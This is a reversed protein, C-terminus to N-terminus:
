AYLWADAGYDEVLQDWRDIGRDANKNQHTYSPIDPIDVKKLAIALSDPYDDHDAVGVTLLQSYLKDIKADVPCIIVNYRQIIPLIISLIRDEKKQLSYDDWVTVRINNKQFDIRVERAIQLQAQNTEINCYELKYIRSLRMLSEVMGPMNEYKHIAYKGGEIHVIIPFIKGEPLQRYVTENDVGAFVPYCRAFGAVTIVTDDSTTAISSAPDLGAFLTAVGKWHKKDYDFEVMNRGDTVYHNIRTQHFAEPKVMMMEPALAENMYEQYFYNIKGEILNSYYKGLISYLDHKEPWSMTSLKRQRILCEARSPRVFDEGHWCEKIVNQLEDMGIVPKELGKWLKSKRFTKVVTDPHVMTGLWICKGRDVSLSNIAEATFWYNMKDRMQETQVNQQSYMDDVILLSPRKGQINRGRIRQGAGKAQVITGDKTIFSNMRFMTSSKRGRGRVKMEELELVRPDKEGFATALDTRDSVTDKLASVFMQAQDGTESAIMIFDEKLPIEVIPDDKEYELDNIDEGDWDLMSQRVYMSQGRLYILYIPILFSDLTSKAGERHILVYRYRDIAHTAKPNLIQFFMMMIEYHMRAFGKDFRDPFCEKAFKFIGLEEHKSPPAVNILYREIADIM